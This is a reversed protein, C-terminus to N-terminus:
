KSDSILLIHPPPSIPSNKQAWYEYLIRTNVICRHVVLWHGASTTRYGCYTSKWGSARWLRFDFTTQFPLIGGHTEIHPNACICIGSYDCKPRLESRSFRLGVLFCVSTIEKLVCHLFTINKPSYTDITPERSRKKGENFVNCELFMHFLQM